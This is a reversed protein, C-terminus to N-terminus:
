KNISKQYDDYVEKFTVGATYKAETSQSAATDILEVDYKYNRAGILRFKGAGQIRYLMIQQGSIKDNPDTNILILRETQNATIAMVGNTDWGGGAAYAKAGSMSAYVAILIALIVALLGNIAWAHKANDSMASEELTLDSRM